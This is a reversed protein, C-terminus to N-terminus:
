RGPGKRTAPKRGLPRTRSIKWVHARGSGPKRILDIDRELQKTWTPCPRDYPLKLRAKLEAWTLGAPTRRLEAQIADRFEIYRM